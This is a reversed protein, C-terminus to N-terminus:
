DGYLYHNLRLNLKNILGNIKDIGAQIFSVKKLLYYLGRRLLDIALCAVFVGLICGLIYPLLGWSNAYDMIGMHLWMTDRINISQHIVYIAFVSPAIVTILKSFLKSKITMTKFKMFIFITMIVILISNYERFEILFRRFARYLGENTIAMSVVSVLIYILVFIITLLVYKIFYQKKPKIDVFKKIYAGIIYMMLVPLMGAAFIGSPNFFLKVVGLMILLMIVLYRFQNKTLKNLLINMIPALLYLAIYASIFWYEGSFVPFISEYWATKMGLTHCIIFILVSYFITIGWLNLIKKINIKKDVLYYGSIILFIANATLSFTDLIRVLIMNYPSLNHNGILGGNGLCHLTVVMLMALIRLAEINLDRKTGNKIIETKEM